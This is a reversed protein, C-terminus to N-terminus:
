RAIQPILGRLIHEWELHPPRPAPPAKSKARARTVRLAELINGPSPDDLVIAAPYQEVYEDMGGTRTIIIPKAFSMALLLLGSGWSELYPLMVVDAAAMLDATMPNSFKGSLLRVRDSANAESALRRTRSLPDDPREDPYGGERGAVLVEISKSDDAAVAAIVGEVNKYPRIGGFCLALTVDPAVGLSARVAERGRPSEPYTTYLGHHAVVLKSAAVPFAQALSQKAMESHVVIQDSWRYVHNAIDRDNASIEHPFVNHATHVVHLGVAKAATWVSMGRVPAAPWQTWLVDYGHLRLWIAFEVALYSERAGGSLKPLLSRRRTSAPSASETPAAPGTAVGNFAPLAMRVGRSQKVLSSGMVAFVRHRRPYSLAWAWPVTFVDLEYGLPVM